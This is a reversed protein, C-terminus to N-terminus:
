PNCRVACPPSVVGRFRTPACQVEACFRMPWPSVAACSTSSSSSSDWALMGTSIQMVLLTSVPAHGRSSSGDRVASNRDPDSQQREVRIVWGHKVRRQAPLRGDCLFGKPKVSSCSRSSARLEKSADNKSAPFWLSFAPSRVRSPPSPGIVGHVCCMPM